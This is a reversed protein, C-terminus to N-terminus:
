NGTPRDRKQVVQESVADRQKSLLVYSALGSVVFAAILLLYTRLGLLYLVAVAVAFLGLRSLTYVVVPRM